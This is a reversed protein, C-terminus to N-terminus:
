LAYRRRLDLAHEALQTLVRVKDQSGAPGSQDLMLQEIRQEYEALNLWDGDGELKSIVFRSWNDVEVEDLMAPFSRAKMRRALEHLRSDSFDPERWHGSVIEDHLYQCRSRDEDQLFGDYLAADPDANSGPRPQVYVRAIKDAVSRHRLQRARERVKDLDLQLRAQNEENLVEVPAVFPCRNIRIEKLPPRQESGKEFLKQAIEEASWELLPEIDEALTRSM